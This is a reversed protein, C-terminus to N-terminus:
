SASLLSIFDNRHHTVPVFPRRLSRYAAMWAIYVDAPFTAGAGTLQVFASVDNTVVLLMLLWYTMMMAMLNRKDEAGEDTQVTM